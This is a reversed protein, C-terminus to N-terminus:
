SLTLLKRAGLVKDLVAEVNNEDVFPWLIFSKLGVIQERYDMYCCCDTVEIVVYIAAITQLYWPMKVFEM